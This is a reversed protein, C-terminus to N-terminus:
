FNVGVFADTVHFTPADQSTSFPANVAYIKPSVSGSPNGKIWKVHGDAFAYNSGELHRKWDPGTSSALGVNTSGGGGAQSCFAKGQNGTVITELVALTLSPKEIQSLLVGLCTTGGAGRGLGLNYAYDTYGRDLPDTSPANGNTESPCQFVANSKIYPQIGDAWGYPSSPFAGGGTAVAPLREDFDQAYQTLGIGIQKLNSQCSSRRANERARGFVPFLISAL